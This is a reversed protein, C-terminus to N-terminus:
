DPTVGLYKEHGEFVERLLKEFRQKLTVPLFNEYKGEATRASLEPHSDCENGYASERTGLKFVVPSSTGWTGLGLTYPGKDLNM